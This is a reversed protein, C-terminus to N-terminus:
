RSVRPTRSPTRGAKSPTRRRSPTSPLQARLLFIKSNLIVKIFHDYYGYTYLLSVRVVRDV